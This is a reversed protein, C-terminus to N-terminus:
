EAQVFHKQYERKSEEQIEGILWIAGDREDLLKEFQAKLEPDYDKESLARAALGLEKMTYLATIKDTAIEDIMKVIKEAIANQERAMACALRLHNDIAIRKSLYDTEDEREFVRSWHHNEALKEAVGPLTKSLFSKAAKFFDSPADMVRAAWALKM